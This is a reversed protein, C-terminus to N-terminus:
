DAIMACFMGVVVLIFLITIAIFIIIKALIPKEDDLRELFLLENLKPDGSDSDEIM